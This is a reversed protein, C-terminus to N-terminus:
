AELRVPKNINVASIKDLRSYLSPYLGNNDRVYDCFWDWSLAGMRVDSVRLERTYEVMATALDLASLVGTKNMTGRFFRLEITHQNQTNVASYRESSSNRPNGVKHKFSLVPKDYEDFTYVDNFRAFRSKRGAFKMMVESNLYVMAIFRHLHAGSSFGARSLHIHLGCTDTDWSRAGYDKRLTEITDWIVDSRERYHALTHPQTVIEFGGSGVSGDYKLIARGELAKSAYESAQVLNSGIETELEFGMYLGSKSSGFFELNPKCSYQHINGRCGCPNRVGAVGQCQCPDSDWYAEECDNCYYCNREYCDQCVTQDQVYYNDSYESYSTDCSECYFSHNEYCYSCWSNNDVYHANDTDYWNDCRECCFACDSCFIESDNSRADDNHIVVSCRECVVSCDICITDGQYDARIDDSDFEGSCYSCTSKDESM